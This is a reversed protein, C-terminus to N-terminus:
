RRQFLLSKFYQIKPDLSMKISTLITGVSCNLTLRNSFKKSSQQGEEQSSTEVLYGFGEQQPGGLHRGTVGTLQRRSIDSSTPKAM